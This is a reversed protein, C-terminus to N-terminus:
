KKDSNFTEIIEIDLQDLEREVKKYEEISQSLEGNWHHPDHAKCGRELWFFAKGANSIAGRSIRERRNRFDERKEALVQSKDLRRTIKNQLPILSVLLGIISGVFSAIALEILKTLEM